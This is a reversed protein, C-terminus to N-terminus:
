TSHRKKGNPEGIIFSKTYHREPISCSGSSNILDLEKQRSEKAYISLSRNVSKADKNETTTSVYGCTPNGIFAITHRIPEHRKAM